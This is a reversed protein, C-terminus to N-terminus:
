STSTASSKPSVWGAALSAISGASLDYLYAAADDKRFSDLRRGISDLYDLFAREEGPHDAHSNSFLIWVRPSGRLRSLQRLYADADGPSFLGIMLSPPRSLLAAAGGAPNAPAPVIPVLPVRRGNRTTDLYGAEGYFRFAYQAAHYVYLRDGDRWRQELHRLVPKINERRVPAVVHFAAAGVQFGIVAAIVALSVARVAPPRRVDLLRDAGAAIFIITAPLLFLVFRGGFPYKHAASALLAALLPMVLLATGRPKRRLCVWAGLACLLVAAVALVTPWGAMGRFIWSVNSAFWQADATSTSPFPLAYPSHEGVISRQLGGVQRRLTVLELVAFSALWASCPLALLALARRQRRQAASAALVTGIAALVLLSAHSFWMAAAGAAALRVYAGRPPREVLAAHALLLLIM